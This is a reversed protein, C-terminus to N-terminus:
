REEEPHHLQHDCGSNGAPSTGHPAGSGRLSFSGCRRDAPPPLLPPGAGSARGPSFSGASCNGPAPWHPAENIHHCFARSESTKSKTEELTTTGFNARDIIFTVPLCHPFGERDDVETLTIDLHPQVFSVVICSLNSLHNMFHKEKCCRNPIIALTSWRPFILNSASARPYAERLLLWSICQTDFTLGLYARKM